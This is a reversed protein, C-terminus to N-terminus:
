CLKSINLRPEIKLTGNATEGNKKWELGLLVTNKIACDYDNSDASQVDSWLIVATEDVVKENIMRQLSRKLEGVTVRLQSQEM